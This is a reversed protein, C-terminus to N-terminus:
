ARPVGVVRDHLERYSCEPAHVTCRSVVMAPGPGVLHRFERGEKEGDARCVQQGGQQSM